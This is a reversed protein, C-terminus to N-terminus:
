EFRPPINLVWPNDIAQAIVEVPHWGIEKVPNRTVSGGLAKSILQGGLCHGLVPIKKKAATQILTIEEEIWPLPDNASMPGGMFVLASTNNLLRPIEEGQDVRILRYPIGKRDLVEGLYGPGECAIHRFVLIPKSLQYNM